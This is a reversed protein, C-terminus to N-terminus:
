MNVHTGIIKIRGKANLMVEFALTWIDIDDGYKNNNIDMCYEMENVRM